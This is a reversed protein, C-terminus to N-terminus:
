KGGKAKKKKIIILVTTVAGAAVIVAGVCILVIAWVSLGGAQVSAPVFKKRKVVMIYTGKQESEPEEPVIEDVVIDTIEEDKDLLDTKLTFVYDGGHDVTYVLYGTAPAMMRDILEFQGNYSYLAYKKGADRPNILMTLQAKMTWEGSQSFNVSQATKDYPLMAKLAKNEPATIRINFDMPTEVDMGNFTLKYATKLDKNLLNFTLNKDAYQIKEFVKKPIVYGTNLLDVQIESGDEANEIMFLIDDVDLKGVDEKNYSFEVRPICRSWAATANNGNIVVKIYKVKEPINQATLRYKVYGTTQHSIDQEETYSLKTFDKGNSSAHIEYMDSVTMDKAPLYVAYLAFSKFGACKYTIYGSADGTLTSRVIPGTFGTWDTQLAKGKDLLTENYEYCFDGFKAGKEYNIDAVTNGPHKIEDLPPNYKITFSLSAKGAKNEVEIVYLGEKTLPAADEPVYKEGDLTITCIDHHEVAYTVKTEVTEGESIAKGRLNYAKVTPQPRNLTVSAEYIGKENEATVTYKGNLDLLIEGECDYPAGDKFIETKDSNYVVAKVDDDVTEGNDLNNGTADILRIVPIEKAIYFSVTATGGFNCATVTYYGDEKLINDAPKEYDKGDKTIFWYDEDSINLKVDAEAVDNYVLSKGGCDAEILPLSLKSLELVALFSGQWLSTVPANPNFKIKVITGAGGLYYVANCVEAAPAGTFPETTVSTPKVLRFEGDFSDATYVTFYADTPYGSMRAKTYKLHMGSYKNGDEDANVFYFYGDKYYTTTDSGITLKTGGETLGWWAKDYDRVIATDNILVHSDGKTFKEPAGEPQISLLREYEETASIIGESFVYTETTTEAISSDITFSLSSEGKVNHAIVEYNGNETLIGGNEFAIEQGDKKVTFSGGLDSDVDMFEIKVESPVKAGDSVPNIYGGLSDKFLANIEPLLVYATYRARIIGSAYGTGKTADTILSLFKIYKTGDPIEDIILEKSIGSSNIGETLTNGVKFDAKNWIKGDESTYFSYTREYFDGVALSKLNITEVTFSGFGIDSYWVAEAKPENKGHNYPWMFYKDGPIMHTINSASASTLSMIVKSTADSTDTRSIAMTTGNNYIDDVVTKTVVTDEATKVIRFDFTTSGAYNEATVSYEGNETFCYANEESNYYDSSEAKAGNKKVTIEAGMGEGMNTMKLKVDRPARGGSALKNAYVGYYNKYTATIEPASIQEKYGCEAHIIGHVWASTGTYNSTLRIYNTGEPIVTIYLKYSAYSNKYIQKYDADKVETLATWDTGNESAEFVYYDYLQTDTISKSNFTLVSFSTVNEINWVMEAGKNYPIYSHKSSSLGTVNNNLPNRSFTNKYTGTINQNFIDFVKTRDIYFPENSGETEAFTSVTVFVASVTIMVALLLSIIKKFLTTKKM